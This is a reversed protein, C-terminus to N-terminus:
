LGKEGLINEIRLSSEKCMSIPRKKDLMGYTDVNYILKKVIVSFEEKNKVLYVDIEKPIDVGIIGYPSSVISLGASIYALIKLFTGASHSFVPSLGYDSVALLEKLKEKPVVGLLEMSPNKVYKKMDQWPGTILLKFKEPSLENFIEITVRVAEENGKSRGGALLIFYPKDFDRRRARLEKYENISEYCIPSPNPIIMTKKLKFMSIANELDVNSPYVVIDASRVELRHLLLYLGYRLLGLPNERSRLYLTQAYNALPDYLITNKVGLLRSFFSFLSMSGFVMIVKAKRLEKYLKIASIFEDIYHTAKILPNLDYHERWRIIKSLLVYFRRPLSVYIVRDHFSKAYKNILPNLNFVVVTNSKGLASITTHIRVDDGSKMEWPTSYYTYAIIRVM